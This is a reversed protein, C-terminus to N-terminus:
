DTDCFMLQYFYPGHAFNSEESTCYNVSNHRKMLHKQIPIQLSVLSPRIGDPGSCACSLRPTHSPNLSVNLANVPNLETEVTLM